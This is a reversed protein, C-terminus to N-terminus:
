DVTQTIRGLRNLKLLAPPSCDMITSTIPTTCFLFDTQSVTVFSKFFKIFSPSPTKVQLTTLCFREGRKTPIFLVAPPSQNEAPKSYRTMLLVRQLNQQFLPPAIQQPIINNNHLMQQLYASDNHKFCVHQCTAILVM